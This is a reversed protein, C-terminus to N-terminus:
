RKVMDPCENEQWADLLSAVKMKSLPKEGVVAAYADSYTDVPIVVPREFKLVAEAIEEIVYGPSEKWDFWVVVACNSMKM